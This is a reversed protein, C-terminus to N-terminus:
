STLGTILKQGATIIVQPSGGAVAAAFATVAQLIQLDRTIDNRVQIAKELEATAGKIAAVAPGADDVAFQLETAAVKDALTSLNLAATSLAGFNPDNQGSDTELYGAVTNATDRLQKALAALQDVGSGTDDAM